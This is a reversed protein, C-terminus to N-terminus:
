QEFDLEINQETNQDAGEASEPEDIFRQIVEGYQKRVMFLLNAQTELHHQWDEKHLLKYQQIVAELAAETPEKGQKRSM